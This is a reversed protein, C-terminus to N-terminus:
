TRAEFFFAKDHGRNELTRKLTKRADHFIKYVNNRNTDLLRAIEAQPMGNLECLLVTKQRDTLSDEIITRILQSVSREEEQEDPTPSPDQEEFRSNQIDGLEELSIQKWEKRRLENYAIRLAISMAWSTFKSRGSFTDLHTLIRVLAMQSVDELFAEDSSARGTLGARLGRVLIDRLELLSENRSESNEAIRDLWTDM